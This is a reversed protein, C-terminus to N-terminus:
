DCECKCCDDGCCGDDGKCCGGDGGCDPTCVNLCDLIWQCSCCYLCRDIGGGHGCCVADACQVSLDIKEMMKYRRHAEIAKKQEKTLQRRRLPKKKLGKIFADFKADDMAQIASPRYHFLPWGGFGRDRPAHTQQNQSEVDDAPAENMQRKRNSSRCSNTICAAMSCIGTGLCGSIIRNFLTWQKTDDIVEKAYELITDIRKKNFCKKESEETEGVSVEFVGCPGNCDALNSILQCSTDESLRELLANKKREKPDLLEDSRCNKGPNLRPEGQVSRAFDMLFDLADTYGPTSCNIITHCPTGDPVDGCNYSHPAWMLSSGDTLTTPTVEIESPQATPQVTPQSSPAVPVHISEETTVLVPSVM